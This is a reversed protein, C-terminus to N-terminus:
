TKGRFNALIVGVYTKKALIVGGKMKESGGEGLPCKKSNLPSMGGGGISIEPNSGAGGM